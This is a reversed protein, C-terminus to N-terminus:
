KSLYSRVATDVIEGMGLVAEEELRRGVIQLAVPAGRFKEPEDTFRTLILRLLRPLDQYRYACYEYNALDATNLFKHAPKKIDVSGDVKTVPIVLSTYDLGNWVTTYATIRVPILLPWLCPYLPAM